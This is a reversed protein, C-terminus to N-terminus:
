TKENQRDNKIEREKISLIINYLDREFDALFDRTKKFLNWNYKDLIKFIDKISKDIILLDKMNLNKLEKTIKM